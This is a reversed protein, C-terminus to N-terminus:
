GGGADFCDAVGSVCGRRIPMAQDPLVGGVSAVALSGDGEVREQGEEVKGSTGPDGQLGGASLDVCWADGDLLGLQVIEEVGGGEDVGEVQDEGDIGGDRM